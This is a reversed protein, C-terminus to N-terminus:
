RNSLEQGIIIALGLVSLLLDQTRMGYVGSLAGFALFVIGFVVLTAGWERARAQALLTQRKATYHEVLARSQAKAQVPITPTM